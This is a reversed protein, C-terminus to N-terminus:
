PSRRKKIGAEIYKEWVLKVLALAGGALAAYLHADVLVPLGVAEASGPLPGVLQEYALKGTIAALALGAWARRYFLDDICWAMFLGHLLASMGLYWSVTPDLILLALSTLLSVGAILALASWHALHAPFIAWVLLLGAANFAWHGWTGHILHATLLRWWEGELIAVRQYRLLAAAKQGLLMAGLSLGLLAIPIPANKLRM